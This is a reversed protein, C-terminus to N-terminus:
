KSQKGRCNQLLWCECFGELFQLLLDWCWVLRFCYINISVRKRTVKVSRCILHPFFSFVACKLEHFRWPPPLVSTTENHFKTTKALTWWSFSPFCLSVFSNVHLHQPPHHRPRVGKVRGQHRLHNQLCVLLGPDLWGGLYLVKEWLSRHGSPSSLFTTLSFSFDYLLSADYSCCLKLICM